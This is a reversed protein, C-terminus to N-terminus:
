GGDISKLVAQHFMRHGAPYQALEGVDKVNNPMSVIKAKSGLKNKMEATMKKGGEDADMALFVTPIASLAQSFSDANHAGMTACAPYGWENLLLWDFVGETLIVWNPAKLRGLGLLPKPGPLCQFRPKVEPEIARGTFYKVKKEEIDPIVIMDKFRDGENTLLGSIKAQSMTIKRSELYQRIRPAGGYGLHLKSMTNKSIGRGELYSIAKHNTTLHSAYWNSAEALVALAQPSQNRRNEAPEYSAPKTEQIRSPEPRDMANGLYSEKLFRLSDMFNMHRRQQIFDIVDGKNHCGFCFFRQTDLYVTFSGEAEDHFPCVGQRINGRGSTKIGHDNIVDIIPVNNKVQEKDTDLLLTKQM